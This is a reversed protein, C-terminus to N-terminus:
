IIGMEILPSVEGDPSTGDYEINHGNPSTLVCDSVVEWGKDKYGGLDLMMELEENM